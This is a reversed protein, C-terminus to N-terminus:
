LSNYYDEESDYQEITFNYGCSLSEAYNLCDIYNYFNGYKTVGNSFSIVYFM